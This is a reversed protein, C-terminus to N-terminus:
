ATVASAIAVNSKVASFNSKYNSELEINLKNLIDIKVNSEILLTCIESNIDIITKVVHSALYTQVEEVRVNITEITELKRGFIGYLQNLHM